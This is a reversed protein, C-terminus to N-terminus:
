LTSFGNLTVKVSLLWRHVSVVVMSAQPNDLDLWDTLMLGTGFEQTKILNCDFENKSFFEPSWVNAHHFLLVQSSFCTSYKMLAIDLPVTLSLTAM